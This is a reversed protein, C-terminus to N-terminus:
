LCTTAVEMRLWVSMEDLNEVTEIGYVRGDSERVLSMGPKIAAFHTPSYRATATYRSVQKHQDAHTVDDIKIKEFEIFLTAVPAAEADVAFDNQTATRVTCRKTPNYTPM